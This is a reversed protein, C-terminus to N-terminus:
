SLIATPYNYVVTLTETAGTIVNSNCIEYNVNGPPVPVYVTAQSSKSSRWSWGYQSSWVYVYTNTTSSTWSIELYGGNTATLTFPTCEGATQTITYSSMLTNSSWTIQPELSSYQSELSYYQSQLSSYNVELIIAALLAIIFLVIFSIAIARWRGAGAGQVGKSLVEVGSPQAKAEVPQSPANVAQQIPPQQPTPTTVVPPPTQPQPQQVQQYAGLATLRSAILNFVENPRKVDWLRYRLSPLFLGVGAQQVEFEVSGCGFLKAFPGQAVNIYRINSFPIEILYRQRLWSRRIVVGRDTIYYTYSSKYPYYTAFGAMAIMIWIAILVVAMSGLPSLLMSVVLLIIIFIVTTKGQCPKGSWLVSSTAM